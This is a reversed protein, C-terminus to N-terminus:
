SPKPVKGLKDLEAVLDDNWKFQGTKAGQM